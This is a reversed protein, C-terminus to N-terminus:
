RTKSRSKRVDTVESPRYNDPIVFVNKEVTRKGIEKGTVFDKAWILKSGPYKANIEDMLKAIEPMEERNKKRQEERLQQKLDAIDKM